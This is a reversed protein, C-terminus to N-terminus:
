NSATLGARKALLLARKARCAEAHRRNAGAQGAQGAAENERAQREMLDAHRAMKQAEQDYCTALGENVARQLAAFEAASDAGMMSSEISVIVSLVQEYHEPSDCTRAYERVIMLRCAGSDGRLRAALKVLEDPAMRDGEALAPPVVAALAVVIVLVRAHIMRARM